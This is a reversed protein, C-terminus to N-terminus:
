TGQDFRVMIELFKNLGRVIRAHVEEIESPIWKWERLNVEFEVKVFQNYYDTDSIELCICEKSLHSSFVGEYKEGLELIKDLTAQEAASLTIYDEPTIDQKM